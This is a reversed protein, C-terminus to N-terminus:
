KGSRTPRTHMLFTDTPDISRPRGAGPRTRACSLSVSGSLSIGQPCCLTGCIHVWSIGKTRCANAWSVNAKYRANSHSGILYTKQGRPGSEQMAHPARQAMSQDDSRTRVGELDNPQADGAQDVAPALFRRIVDEGRRQEPAALSFSSAVLKAISLPRFTKRLAMDDNTQTHQYTKRPASASDHAPRAELSPSRSFDWGRKYPQCSNGQGQKPAALRGARPRIQCYSLNSPSTSAGRRGTSPFQLRFPPESRERQASVAPRSAM